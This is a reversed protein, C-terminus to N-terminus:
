VKKTVRFHKTKSIPRTEQIEVTDGVAVEIGELHAPIRSDRKMAKKYLAHKIFRTVEVIVTQTSKTSVIKGVITKAM